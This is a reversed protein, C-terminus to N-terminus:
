WHVCGMWGEFMGVTCVIYNTGNQIGFRKRHEM